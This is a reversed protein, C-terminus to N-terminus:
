TGGLVPCVALPRRVVDGVVIEDAKSTGLGSFKCKIDEIEMTAAELQQRKAEVSEKSMDLQEIM